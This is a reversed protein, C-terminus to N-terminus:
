PLRHYRDIPSSTTSTLTSVLNKYVIRSVADVVLGGVDNRKPLRRPRTTASYCCWCVTAMLVGRGGLLVREVQSRARSVAGTTQGYDPVDSLDLESMWQMVQASDTPPVRDLTPFQAVIPFATPIPPAGAVGTPTAGATYTTDLPVTTATAM